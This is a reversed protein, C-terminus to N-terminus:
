FRYWEMTGNHLRSHGGRTRSGGPIDGLIVCVGDCLQEIAGRGIRRCLELTKSRHWEVDHKWDNALVLEANIGTSKEDTLGHCGAM